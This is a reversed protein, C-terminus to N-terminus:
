LLNKDVYAEVHIEYMKDYFRMPLDPDFHTIFAFPDSFQIHMCVTRAINRGNVDYCKVENNVCAIISKPTQDSLPLRVPRPM